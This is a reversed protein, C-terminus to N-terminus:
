GILIYWRRDIARKSVKADVHGAAHLKATAAKAQRETIYGKAWGKAWDADHGLVVRGDNLKVTNLAANSM